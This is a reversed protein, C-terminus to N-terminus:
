MGLLEELHDFFAANECLAQKTFCERGSGRERGKSKRIECFYRARVPKARLFLLMIFIKKLAGSSLGVAWDRGTEKLDKSKRIMM